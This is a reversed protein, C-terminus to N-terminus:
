LAVLCGATVLAVGGIVAGVIAGINPSSSSSQSPHPPSSNTSTPINSSSTSTTRSTRSSSTTSSQPVSEPPVYVVVTFQDSYNYNDPNSDYSIRIVYTESPPLDESINWTLLGTNEINRAITIIQELQNNADDDLLVITVNAGVTNAWVIQIQGGATARTEANPSIIANPKIPFQAEAHKLLIIYLNLLTFLPKLNM